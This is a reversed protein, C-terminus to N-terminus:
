AGGESIYQPSTKPTAYPEVAIAARTHQPCKWGDREKAWKSRRASRAADTRNAGGPTWDGCDPHDCWVDYWREIGM